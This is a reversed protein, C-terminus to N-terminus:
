CNCKLCRLVSADCSAFNCAAWKPIFYLKEFLTLIHDHGEYQISPRLAACTIGLYFNCKECSYIFRYCHKHCAKSAITTIWFMNSLIFNKSFSLITTTSPINFKELCSWVPNTFTFKVTIAVM